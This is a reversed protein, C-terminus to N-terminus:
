GEIKQLEKKEEEIIKKWLGSDGTVMAAHKAKYNNSVKAVWSIDQSFFEAVSELEDDKAKAFLEILDVQESLTINSKLILEKIKQFNTNM